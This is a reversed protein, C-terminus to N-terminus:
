DLETRKFRVVSVEDTGPNSAYIVGYSFSMGLDGTEVSGTVSGSPCYHSRNIRTQLGPALMVNEFQTRDPYM